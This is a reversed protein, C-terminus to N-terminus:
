QLGDFHWCGITTNAANSVLASGTISRSNILSGDVTFSLTDTNERIVCVHHWEGLSFNYSISPTVGSEMGRVKISNNATGLSFSWHDGNWNGSTIIAGDYNKHTGQPRVWACMTYSTLGAFDETAIDFGDGNNNGDGDLSM